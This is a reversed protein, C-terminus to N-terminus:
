REEDRRDPIADVLDHLSQKVSGVLLAPTVDALGWPERRGRTVAFSGGDIRGVVGVGSVETRDIETVTEPLGSIDIQILGHECTLVLNYNMVRSELMLINGLDSSFVPVWGGRPGQSALTQFDLHYLLAEDLRRALIGSQTVVTSVFGQAHLDTVPNREGATWWSGPQHPTCGFYMNRANVSKLWVAVACAVESATGTNDLRRDGNWLVTEGPLRHIADFHYYRGEWPPKVTKKEGVRINVVSSMDDPIAVYTEGRSDIAVFLVGRATLGRSRLDELGIVVASPDRYHYM